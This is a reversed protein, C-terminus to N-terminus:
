HIPMETAGNFAMREPLPMVVIAEALYACREAPRAVEEEVVPTVVRATQPASDAWVTQTDRTAATRM